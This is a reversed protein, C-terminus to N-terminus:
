LPVLLVVDVEDELLRQHLEPADKELTARHSYETPACHFRPALRGIVGEAALAQLHEIPCFTNPDDTHTAQKDWSLDDTYLRTPAPVTPGSDVKRPELSARPYTSATTVLGLTCAALPKRLRVFPVTDHHAYRYAREFGQAEYYERSRQMYLVPASDSKRDSM